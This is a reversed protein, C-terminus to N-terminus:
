IAKQDRQNKLIINLTEIDYMMFLQKVYELDDGKVVNFAFFDALSFTGDMIYQEVHELVTDPATEGHMEKIAYMMNMVTIMSPSIHREVLKTQTM